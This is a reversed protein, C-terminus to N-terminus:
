AAKAHLKKHCNQCHPLGSRWAVELPKGCFPCAPSWRGGCEPCEGIILESPPIVRGNERLDLVMHCSPNECILFSQM